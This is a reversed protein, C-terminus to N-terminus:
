RDAAEKRILEEEKKLKFEPAIGSLFWFACAIFLGAFGGLAVKKVASSLGKSKGQAVSHDAFITFSPSDIIEQFQESIQDYARRCIDIVSSLEADAKEPDIMLSADTEVADLKELKDQIDSIQEELKAATTFNEAQEVILNNYYDTTTKTSRSSDSEQMSVFIEDNKYNDLIDQNIAIKEEIVTLKTQLNRLRYQYSTTMAERDRVLDNAYVYAYLYNVSVDRVTQLEAMLDNLSRGTRWSRYSRVNEPENECYDYLDQVATRLMDLSEQIDQAQLDIAAIVNDPLKLNAYTAVLYDNYATMIRDLVLRLEADTLSIKKQGFGNTLFVVFSNIYTLDINQVQTYAGSTKDDIMRSAVEQKRRSDETLIRDIQVNDRLEALTVPQSLTLGDMAAQLVYSSTVQSLDLENGDPATLDKVPTRSIVQGDSNRKVVDYKLTVVSSVTLPKKSVQYLLLAACVGVTFCLLMVWLYVRLKKKMNHFVHALDIEMVGDESPQNLILNIQQNERETLPPLDGQREFNDM